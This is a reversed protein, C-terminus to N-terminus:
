GEVKFGRKGARGEWFLRGEKRWKAEGMGSVLFCLGWM